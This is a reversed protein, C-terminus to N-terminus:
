RPDSAGMRITSIGAGRIVRVAREVREFPTSPPVRLLAEVPARARASASLATTLEDASKPVGDLTYGDGQSEMTVVRTTAKLATPLRPPSTAEISEPVLPAGERVALFSFPHDLIQVTGAFVNKEETWLLGDFVQRSRPFQIEFAIRRSLDAAVRGTVPYMSGNRDSRFRGSVTGDAAVALELAGSMQGNSVLTYRGNFDTPMVAPGTSPRGPGSGPVTLPEDIAYLRNEGIAILGPGGESASSFAIDGGFGPPVVQGTDLDFEFRDFLAVDRGRAKRAVRDGRDITEFRDVSIVPVMRAGKGTPASRRLGTSVLLKALNGQETTAIILASREGRVVEPM